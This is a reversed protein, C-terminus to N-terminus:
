PVSGEIEQDWKDNSCGYLQQSYKSIEMGRRTGNPHMYIKGYPERSRYVTSAIVYLFKSRSILHGYM